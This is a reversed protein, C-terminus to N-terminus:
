VNGGESKRRNKAMRKFVESIVRVGQPTLRYGQGDENTVFFIRYRSVYIRFANQSIGLNDSVDKAIAWGSVIEQTAVSAMVAFITHSYGEDHVARSMELLLKLSETTSTPKPM